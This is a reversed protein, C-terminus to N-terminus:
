NQARVMDNFVININSAYKKDDHDKSTKPFKLYKSKILEILVPEEQQINLLDSDASLATVM